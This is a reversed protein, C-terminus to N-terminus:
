RGSKKAPPPVPVTAGTGSGRARQQRLMPAIAELKQQQDASLLNKIQIRMVFTSREVALKAEQMRDFAKVAAAEDIADKGLLDTLDLQRKELEAKQDILVRRNQVWITEIRSQQEPSLKLQQIVRRNTWWKSPPMDKLAGQAFLGEALVVVLIGVWACGISIRM